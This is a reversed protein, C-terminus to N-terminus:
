PRQRTGLGPGGLAPRCLDLWRPHRTPHRQLRVAAQPLSQSGAHVAAATMTSIEFFNGVVDVRANSHALLREGAGTWQELSPAITAWPTDAANGQRQWQSFAIRAVDYREALEIMKELEGINNQTICIFIQVYRNLGLEQFM